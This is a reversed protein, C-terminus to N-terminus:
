QALLQREKFKLLEQLERIETTSASEGTAGGDETVATATQLKYLAKKKKKKKVSEQLARPQASVRWKRFTGDTGGTM